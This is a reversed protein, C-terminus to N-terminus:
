SKHQTLLAAWMVACYTVLVGLETVESRGSSLFLVFIFGPLSFTSVRIRVGRSISARPMRHPVLRLVEKQKQSCNKMEGFARAKVLADRECKKKKRKLRTTASFRLCNWEPSFTCFACVCVFWFIWSIGCDHQKRQKTCPAGRSGTLESAHFTCAWRELSMVARLESVCKGKLVNLWLTPTITLFSKASIHRTKLYLDRVASLFLFVGRNFDCSVCPRGNSHNREGVRSM